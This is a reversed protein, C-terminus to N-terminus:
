EGTHAATARLAAFAESSDVDVGLRKADEGLADVDLVIQARVREEDKGEEADKSGANGFLSFASIKGKKYRRLSDETKKM